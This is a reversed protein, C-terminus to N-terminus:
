RRWVRATELVASLGPRSALLYVPGRRLRRPQGSRFSRAEGRPSEVPRRIGLRACRSGFASGHPRRTLDDLANLVVPRNRRPAYGVHDPTTTSIIAIAISTVFMAGSAEIAKATM